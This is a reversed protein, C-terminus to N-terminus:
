WDFIMRVYIAEDERIVYQSDVCDYGFLPIGPQVIKGSKAKARKGRISRLRIQEREFQAVSAAMSKMLDGVPSNEFQDFVYEVRVGLERLQEEMITLPALGRAFRDLEMCTVVQIKKKRALEFIEEMEPRSYTAGSITEFVHAVVNYTKQKNYDICIADQEALSYGAEEQQKTSVRCYIASNEEMIVEM